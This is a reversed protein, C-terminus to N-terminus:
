SGRDPLMGAEFKSSRFHNLVYGAGSDWGERITEYLRRHLKEYICNFTNKFQLDLVSEIKLENFKRPVPYRGWYPIAEQATRFMEAEQRDLVLGPILRVLDTLRHNKIREDLVGTNILRPDIAIALLKLMNEISLGALLIFTRSIAAKDIKEVVDGPDRGLISILRGNPEDEWLVEAASKLEEAYGMWEDPSASRLFEQVANHRDIEDV